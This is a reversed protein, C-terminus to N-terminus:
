VAPVGPLSQQQTVVTGSLEISVHASLGSDGSTTPCALASVLEPTGLPSTFAGAPQGGALGKLKLTGFRPRWVFQCGFTGLTTCPEICHPGPAAAFLRAQSDACFPQPSGSAWVEM